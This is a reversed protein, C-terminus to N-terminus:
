VPLKRGLRRYMITAGSRVEPIGIVWASLTFVVGGVAVGVLAVIWVSLGQTLYLWGYLAAIMCLGAACTQLSAVLIARGNIGGLRRRMLVLLAFMELTTALSNALALGGLPPEGMTQFLASFAISFLINLSM